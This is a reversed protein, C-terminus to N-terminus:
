FLSILIRVGGLEVLLPEEFVVEVSFGLGDAHEIPVDVAMQPQAVDRLQVALAKPALYASGPPLHPRHGGSATPTPSRSRPQSPQAIHALTLFLEPEPVWPAAIRLASRDPTSSQPGRADALTPVDTIVALRHRPQALTPTRM